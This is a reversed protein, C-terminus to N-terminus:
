PVTVAGDSYRPVAPYRKKAADRRIDHFQPWQAMHVGGRFIYQKVEYITVPM